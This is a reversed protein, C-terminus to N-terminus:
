NARILGGQHINKTLEEQYIRGYKSFSQPYIGKSGLAHSLWIPMAGNTKIEMIYEYEGFKVKGFSGATLDLQNVRWLLNHDFTIRLTDDKKGKMALRDYSLYIMPNLDYRQLFWDIERFVQNNMDPKKGKICYDMAEQYPLSIRRKYVTGDFKKKIELYVISDADPVGYSRLRLKEKYLPKSISNRILDFTPTDFYVNCIKYKRYQDYELQDWIMAMLQRYQVEDLLYKKEQRHFNYQYSSM